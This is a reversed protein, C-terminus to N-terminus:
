TYGRKTNVTIPTHTHTHTRAHTHTHKKNNKGVKTTFLRSTIIIRHNLSQFFYNVISLQNPNPNPNPNAIVTSNGHLDFWHCKPNATQVIPFLSDPGSDPLCYDRYFTQSLQLKKQLNFRLNQHELFCFHSMVNHEICVYQMLIGQHQNLGCGLPHMPGCESATVGNQDTKLQWM